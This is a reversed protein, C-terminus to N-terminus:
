MTCVLVMVPQVVDMHVCANLLREHNEQHVLEWLQGDVLISKELLYLHVPLVPHLSPQNYCKRWKMKLQRKTKLM